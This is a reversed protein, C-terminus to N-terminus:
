NSHTKQRASRHGNQVPEERGTDTPQTTSPPIGDRNQQKDHNTPGKKDSKRKNDGGHQGRNGHQGNNKKIVEYQATTAAETTEKAAKRLKQQNRNPRTAKKATNNAAAYDIVIPQQRRPSETKEPMTYEAVKKSLQHPIWEPAMSAQKVAEIPDCFIEHLSQDDVLKTAGTVALRSWDLAERINKTQVLLETTGNCTKYIRTFM